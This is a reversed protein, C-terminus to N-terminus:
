DSLAAFLDRIEEEIQEMTTVTQAIEQRVLEGYRQRLRHVAVKVAGETMDLKVAINSYSISGQEATLCTKLHDFLQQKGATVYEAKLRTMAQKLVTQAWHREFLKEPTLEDVPECGYRTEGDDIDLSLIKIDGGRKQAQTRDWEDALFHKLSSLLFSRFKGRKPDAEGVAQREILSAFFSQTYDEAQQRDCGWRRLYAYLPYWYIQCLTALAQQYEPSLQNGASLVVSWHTTTFKFEGLTSNRQKRDSM